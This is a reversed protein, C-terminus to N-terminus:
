RTKLLFQQLPQQHHSQVQLGKDTRSLFFGQLPLSGTTGVLVNASPRYTISASGKRWITVDKDGSVRTAASLLSNVAPTMGRLQRNHKMHRGIESRLSRSVDLGSAGPQIRKIARALRLRDGFSLTGSKGVRFGTKRMGTGVVIVNSQPRLWIAGRKGQLATFNRDGISTKSLRTVSREMNRIAGRLPSGRRAEAGGAALVVATAFILCTMRRM